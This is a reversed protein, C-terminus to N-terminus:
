LSSTKILLFANGKRSELECIFDEINKITEREVSKSSIIGEKLASGDLIRHACYRQSNIEAVLENTRCTYNDYAFYYRHSRYEVCIDLRSVLNLGIEELLDSDFRCPNLAILFGCRVESNYGVKAFVTKCNNHSYLSNLLLCLYRNINYPSEIFEFDSNVLEQM